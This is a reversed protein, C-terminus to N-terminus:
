FILFILDGFFSLVAGSIWLVIGLIALCIIVFPPGLCGRTLPNIEKGDVTEIRTGVFCFLLIAYFVLLPSM